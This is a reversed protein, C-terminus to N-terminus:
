RAPPLQMCFRRSVRTKILEVPSAAFGQVVGAAGGAIAVDIVTLQGVGVGRVRAALQKLRENAAFLFSNLFAVGVVPSAMGKYLGRVGEYRLTKVLTNGLGSLKGRDREAQLRTKITDLPYSSSIQAVGAVGGAVFAKVDDM